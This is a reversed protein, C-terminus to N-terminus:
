QAQSFSVESCLGSARTQAAVQRLGARTRRWGRSLQARARRGRRRLREGAGHGRWLEACFALASVCAGACLLQLHGVVDEPTLVKTANASAQAKAERALGLRVRIGHSSNYDAKWKRVLGTEEMRLILMKVPDSWPWNRFPREGTHRRKHVTLSSFNAYEQGCVDCSCRESKLTRGRGAVNSSAPSTRHGARSAVKEGPTHQLESQSPPTGSARSRGRQLRKARRHLGTKRPLNRSRRALNRGGCAGIEEDTEEATETEADAEIADTGLVDFDEILDDLEDYLSESEPVLIEPLLSENEVAIDRRSFEEDSSQRQQQQQQSMSSSEMNGESSESSGLMESRTKSLVPFM